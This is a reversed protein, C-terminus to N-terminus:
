RYAASPFRASYRVREILNARRLNPDNRRVHQHEMLPTLAVISGDELVKEVRWYKKALYDYFEGHKSPYVDVADPGPCTSTEQVRYVIPAGPRLDRSFISQEGLGGGLILGVVAPLVVLLLLLLFVFVIM